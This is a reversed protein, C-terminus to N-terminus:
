FMILDVLKIKLLILIPSFIKLNNILLMKKFDMVVINKIKMMLKNELIELSKLKYHLLIKDLIELILIM